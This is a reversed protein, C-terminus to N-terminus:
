VFLTPYTSIIKLKNKRIQHEKNNVKKCLNYHEKKLLKYEDNQIWSKKEIKLNKLENELTKLKEFKNKLSIDNCSKKRSHKRLASCRKDIYMMNWYGYYYGFYHEKRPGDLCLPCKGSHRFWQVICDTHYTHECPLTHNNNGDNLNSLCIPCLEEHNM